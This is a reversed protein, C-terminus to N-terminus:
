GAGPSLTESKRGTSFFQSTCVLSAVVYPGQAVAAQWFPAGTILTAPAKPYLPL